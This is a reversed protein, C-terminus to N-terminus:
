DSPLGVSEIDQIKYLIAKSLKVSNKITAIYNDSRTFNSYIHNPSAGGRINVYRFLHKQTPKTEM